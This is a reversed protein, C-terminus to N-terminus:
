RLKPTNKISLIDASYFDKNLKLVNKRIWCLFDYLDNMYDYIDAGLLDWTRVEGPAYMKSETSSKM